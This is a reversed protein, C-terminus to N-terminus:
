YSKTLTGCHLTMSAIAKFGDVALLFFLEIHESQLVPRKQMSCTESFFIQLYNVLLFM